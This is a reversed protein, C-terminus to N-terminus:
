YDYYEEFINLQWFPPPVKDGVWMGLIAYLLMPLDGKSDGFAVFPPKNYVQKLLVLKGVGYTVPRQLKRSLKPDQVKNRIGYVDDFIEKVRDITLLLVEATASVIVLRFGREKAFEAVEWVGERWRDKVWNNTFERAIEQLQERKLGKLSSVAFQYAVEPHHKELQKYRHLASKSLLGADQAAWEFFADGLDDHWLTGDADFALYVERHNPSITEAYLLQEKIDEPHLIM